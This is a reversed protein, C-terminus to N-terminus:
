VFMRVNASTQAFDERVATARLSATLLRKTYFIAALITLQRMATSTGHLVADPSFRGYPSIVPPRM